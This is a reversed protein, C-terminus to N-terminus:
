INETDDIVSASEDIPSSGFFNKKLLDLSCRRGMFGMRTGATPPNKEEMGGGEMGTHFFDVGKLTTPGGGAVVDM